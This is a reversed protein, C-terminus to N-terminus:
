RLQTPLRGHSRPSSSHVAISRREVGAEERVRYMNKLTRTNRASVGWNTKVNSMLFRILCFAHGDREGYESDDIFVRDQVDGTDLAREAEFVVSGNGSEASLLAWDQTCEDVIPAGAELSHADTM